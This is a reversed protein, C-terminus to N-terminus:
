EDSRVQAHVDLSASAQLLHVKRGQAHLLVAAAPASRRVGLVLVPRDDYGDPHRARDRHQDRRTRSCQHPDGGRHHDAGCRLRLSRVHRRRRFSGSIREALHADHTRVAPVADVDLRDHWRGGVRLKLSGPDFFGQPAGIPGTYGKARLTGVLPGMDGVVGALFAYDMKAVIAKDAVAGFDAHNYSFQDYPATVHNSEMFEIFGNAVDAGYDADQVFVYPVKPKVDALVTRAFIQGESSDKTPLRFITHYQTATLRDDTSVPVILPMQQPGYSSSIGVLTAESNVHGITALVTSDGTVFSAATRAIAVNNQDDYTRLAFTRQLSGAMENYYQIAARAGVVMRDGIPKASGSLPACMGISISPTLSTFQAVTTAGLGGLFESRDM